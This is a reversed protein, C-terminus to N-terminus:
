KFRKICFDVVEEGNLKRTTADVRVYFCDMNQIKLFVKQDSKKVNIRCVNKGYNSEFSINMYDNFHNFINKPFYIKIIFDIINRRYGDLCQDKIKDLEPDIGIVEDCNNNKNEKVGILLVGGDSNLFSALTKAIIIKSAYREYQKVDPSKSKKIEENTLRESWLASSKFEVFHNEGISLIEDLTMDKNAVVDSTNSSPDSKTESANIIRRVRGIVGSDLKVLIGHSHNSTSSLIEDINGSVIKLRSRDDRPNVEVEMGIFLDDRKTCDISM